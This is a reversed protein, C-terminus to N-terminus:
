LLYKIECMDEEHRECKCILAYKEQTKGELVESSDSRSHDVCDSTMCM